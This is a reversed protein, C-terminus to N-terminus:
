DCFWNMERQCYDSSYFNSVLGVFIASQEVAEKLHQSLDDGSRSEDRDLYVHLEATSGNFRQRLLAGISDAVKRSWNRLSPDETKTAWAYSFFVDFKYEGGLVSM